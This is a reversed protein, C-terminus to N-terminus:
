PILAGANRGTAGGAVPGRDGVQVIEVGARRLADAAALGPVGAGVGRVAPRPHVEDTVAGTDPDWATTGAVGPAPDGLMLEQ